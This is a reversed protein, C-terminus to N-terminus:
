ATGRSKWEQQRQPTPSLLLAGKCLGFYVALAREKHTMDPFDQWCRLPCLFFLFFSFLFSERCHKYSDCTFAPLGVSLHDSGVREAWLHARPLWSPCSVARSLGSM